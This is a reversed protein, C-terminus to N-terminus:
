LRSRVSPHFRIVREKKFPLAIVEEYDASITISNGSRQISILEAGPPMELSDTLAVLRATIHQDTQTSAFRAEQGMADKFKYFRVYAAAAPYGFYLVVAILVLPLLCGFTSAGRRNVM